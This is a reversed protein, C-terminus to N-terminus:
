QNAGDLEPHRHERVQFGAPAEGIRPVHNATCLAFFACPGPVSCGGPNRYFARDPDGSYRAAEIAEVTALTDGALAEYEAKTRPVERRGFYYGPREAIDKALRAGYMRLTEHGEAEVCSAGEVAPMKEGCYVIWESENVQRTIKEAEAKTIKKPRITPKRVVDYLIVDPADAAFGYIGVQTDLTLRDWYPSGDEVSDSTTKREIIGRRGDPYRIVSDIMGRITVCQPREAQESLPPQVEYEFRHEVREVEYEADQDRWYLRHAMFLRYLKEGWLDNPANEHFWWRVTEPKAVPSQEFAAHWCTGVALTENERVPELQLDYALHYLRPCRRFASLSSNTYTYDM